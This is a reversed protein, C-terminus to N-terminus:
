MRFSHEYCLHVQVWWETPLKPVYGNEEALRLCQLVTVLGLSFDHHKDKMEFILEEQCIPCKHENLTALNAQARNELAKSHTQDSSM